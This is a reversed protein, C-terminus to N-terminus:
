GGGAKKTLHKRENLVGFFIWIPKTDSKLNPQRGMKKSPYFKTGFDAMSQEADANQCCASVSPGTASRNINKVLNQDLPKAVRPNKRHQAWSAAIAIAANCSRHQGMRIPIQKPANTSSPTYNKSKFKPNAQTKTQDKKVKSIVCIKPLQDTGWNQTDAREIMGM